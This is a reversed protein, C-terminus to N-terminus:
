SEKDVPRINMFPSRIQFLFSQKDSGIFEKLGYNIEKVPKIKFTGFLKDWLILLTGYNSDTYFQDQEHHVKHYNPMMLFWGFVKDIWVPYNLNTHQLFLMPILIFLFINMSMIDIGFIISIAMEGVTFFILDTPYVRLSTSADMSTDSHHVRHQRWLLPFRHDWRHVWYDSFDLLIVGAVIKMWYPVAVSNFLGLQYDDIWGYTTIIIFALLSGMAFVIVQFLFNQFLHNMKSGVSKPRNIFTELVFFVIILVFLIHNPDLELLSNIFEM